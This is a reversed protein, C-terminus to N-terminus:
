GCLLPEQVGCVTLNYCKSTFDFTGVIDCYIDGRRTLFAGIVDGSEHVVVVMHLKKFHTEKQNKVVLIQSNGAFGGTLVNPSFQGPFLLRVLLVVTILHNM